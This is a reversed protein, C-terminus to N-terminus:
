EEGEVEVVEVPGLGELFTRTERPDYKSDKAEIVLFFKDDNVRHFQPHEFLPHFLRPLGNFALMGIVATLGAALITCEFTIPIFMPWSNMPKGGVIFPSNLVSVWYQLGFGAFMGILAGGFIVWALIPRKMGIADTMGHIAFPSYADIKEYGAERTKQAAALLADDDVFEAVLAYAPSM